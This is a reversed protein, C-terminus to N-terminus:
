YYNVHVSADKVERTELLIFVGVILVAISGGLSYYVPHLKVVERLYVRVLMDILRIEIIDLLFMDFMLQIKLFGSFNSHGSADLPIIGENSVVEVREIDLFGVRLTLGVHRMLVIPIMLLASIDDILDVSKLILLQIFFYLALINISNPIFGDLHTGQRLPLEFICGWFPSAEDLGFFM